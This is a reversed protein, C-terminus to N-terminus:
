GNLKGDTKVMSKELLNSETPTDGKKEITLTSDKYYSETSKIILNTLEYKGNAAIAADVISKPVATTYTFYEVETNRGHARGM